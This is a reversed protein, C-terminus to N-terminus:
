PNRRNLEDRLRRNEERLGDITERASAIMSATVRRLAVAVATASTVAAGIVLPAGSSVAVAVLSATLIGVLASVGAGVAKVALLHELM